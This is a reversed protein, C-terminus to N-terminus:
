RVVENLKSGKNLSDKKLHVDLLESLAHKARNAFLREKIKKKEPM